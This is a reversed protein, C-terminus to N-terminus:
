LREFYCDNIWREPNTTIYDYIKYFENENRVIHDYYSRQWIRGEMGFEHFRKSSNMKVYGVINPIISHKNSCTQNIQKKDILVILHIHNPMIVYNCLEVGFREPIKKIYEEVVTGYETIISSPLEHIAGVNIQSLFPARKWTCITIFYVGADNYNYGELRLRKRYPLNM